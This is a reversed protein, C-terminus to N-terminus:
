KVAVPLVREIEPVPHGTFAAVRAVTGVNTHLGPASVKLIEGLAVLQAVVRHSTVTVARPETVTDALAKTVEIAVWAIDAGTPVSPAPVSSKKSRVTCVVYEIALMEVDVNVAVLMPKSAKPVRSKKEALPLVSEIVPAPHGVLAAARTVIGVKTHLGPELVNWIEGLAVLQAVMQAMVTVVRPVTDTDALM